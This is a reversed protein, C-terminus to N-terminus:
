NSIAKGPNMKVRFPFRSRTALSDFLNYRDPFSLPPFSTLIARIIRSRQSRPIGLCIYYIKLYKGGEGGRQSRANFLEHSSICFRANGSFNFNKFGGREGVAGNLISRGRSREENNFRVLTRVPKSIGQFVRLLRPHGM